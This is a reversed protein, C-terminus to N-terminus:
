DQSFYCSDQEGHLVEWEIQIAMTCVYYWLCGDFAIARSVHETGSLSISSTANSNTSM